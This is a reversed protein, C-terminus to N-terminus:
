VIYAWPIDECYNNTKCDSCLSRHQSASFFREIVTPKVTPAYHDTNVPALFREIITPKVTPAYHDTNVPALFREIITPKVTPAYHDTNVPALFREIVTFIQM